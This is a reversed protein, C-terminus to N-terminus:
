INKCIECVVRVVLQSVCKGGHLTTNRSMEGLFRLIANISALKAGVELAHDRWM